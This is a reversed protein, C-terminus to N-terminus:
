AAEISEAATDTVAILACANFVTVKGRSPSFKCESAKVGHKAVDILTHGHAACWKWLQRADRLRITSGDMGDFKGYLVGADRARVIVRDGIAWDPDPGHTPADLMKAIEIAAKLTTMDM